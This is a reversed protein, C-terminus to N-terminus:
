RRVRSGGGFPAAAAQRSYAAPKISEGRALLHGINNKINEAQADLVAQVYAEVGEPDAAFDSRKVKWGEPAYSWQFDVGKAVRECEEDSANFGELEEEVTAFSGSIDYQYDKDAWQGKGSKKDKLEGICKVMVNKDYITGRVCDHGGKKCVSILRPEGEHGHTCEYITGRSANIMADSMRQVETQEVVDVTNGEAFCVECVLAEAYCKAGCSSGGELTAACTNQLMQHAGVMQSFHKDRDSMEWRKLVGTVRRAIEPNRDQCTSCRSHRPTADDDLCRELLLADGDPIYHWYRFDIVPVVRGTQRVLKNWRRDYKSANGAGTYDRAAQREHDDWAKAYYCYLCRGDFGSKECSCEKPPGGFAWHFGRVYPDVDPFRVCATEKLDMDFRYVRWDKKATNGKGAKGSKKKDSIDNFHRLLNDLGM